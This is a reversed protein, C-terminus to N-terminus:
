KKKRDWSWEDPGNLFISATAFFLGLDRVAVDNYGLSHIIGLLHLGLVAASFRTWLGLALCIGFVTEFIGNAIVFTEAAIPLNMAWTPLYAIFNVTNFMQNLGFWLFVAAIGYRLLMPAYKHYKQLNM